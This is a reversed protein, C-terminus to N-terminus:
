LPIAPLTVTILGWMNSNNCHRGSRHPRVQVTRDEVIRGLETEGMESASFRVLGPGGSEKQFRHCYM